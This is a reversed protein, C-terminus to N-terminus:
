IDVIRNLVEVEAEEPGMIYTDIVLNFYKPDWFNCNGYL